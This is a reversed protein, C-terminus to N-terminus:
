RPAPTPSLSTAPPRWSRSWCRHSETPRARQTPSKEKRSARAQKQKNNRSAKSLGKKSL